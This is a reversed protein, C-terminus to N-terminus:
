IEIQKKKYLVKKICKVLLPFIVMAPWTHTVM